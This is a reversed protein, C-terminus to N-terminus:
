EHLVKKLNFLSLGRGAFLLYAWRSPGLGRARRHPGPRAHDRDLLGGHGRQLQRLDDLVAVNPRGLNQGLMPGSEQRERVLQDRLLRYVGFLELLEEVIQRGLLVQM